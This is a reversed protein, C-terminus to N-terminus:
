RDAGATGHIWAALDRVVRKEIGRFGHATRAGCVSGRYNGGGSYGKIEVKPASVFEKALAPLDEFVTVDCASNKM